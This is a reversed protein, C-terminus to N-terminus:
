IIIKKYKPRIDGNDPCLLDDLYAWRKILHKINNIIIGDNIIEILGDSREIIIHNEEATLEEPQRWVKSIFNKVAALAIEKSDWPDVELQTGRVRAASKFSEYVDERM